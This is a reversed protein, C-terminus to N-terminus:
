KIALLEYRKNNIVPNQSTIKVTLGNEDLDWLYANGANDVIINAYHYFALQGDAVRWVRCYVPRVTNIEFCMAVLGTM